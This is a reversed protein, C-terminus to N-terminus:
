TSWFAVHRTIRVAGGDSFARSKRICGTRPVPVPADAPGDRAPRVARRRRPLTGARHEEEDDSGAADAGGDGGRRQAGAVGDRHEVLVRERVLPEVDLEARRPLLRAAAERDAGRELEVRQDLRPDLVRVDEDGGGVPVVRVEHDRLEGLQAELDRAHDRADEVRAARRPVGLLPECVIQGVCIAISCSSFAASSRQHGAQVHDDGAGALDAPVERALQELAAVLDGHDLLVPAAVQGDLLLELVGDLVAVRGLQPHELPGPDLAGVEDHRDGAVVLVVQQDALDRLLLVEALPDDGAAVVRPVEGVELQEADLRRDGRGVQDQAQDLVLDRAVPEDVQEVQGLLPELDDLEDDALAAGRVAHVHGVQRQGVARQDDRHQAVAGPKTGFDSLTTVAPSSTSTTSSGPSSSSMVCATRRCRRRHSVPVDARQDDAAPRSRRRARLRQVLAPEALADQQDAALGIRRVLPRRARLLVEGALLVAVGAQEVVGVPVAAVPDLERRARAHHLEVGRRAGRREGGLLDDLEADGQEGGARVDAPQPDVAGLEGADVVQAREPRGVRDAGVGVLRLADHQDAAGVDGALDRRREGGAPLVAREHHELVRRERRREARGRAREEGVHQARVADLEDGAVPELPELAALADLAHHGRRAALERGVHDDHARARHGVHQERAGGPQLEALRAADGAGRVQLRRRRAHEGGAVHALPVGPQVLARRPDLVELDGLRLAARGGRRM